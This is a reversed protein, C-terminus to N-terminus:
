NQGWGGRSDEKADISLEGQESSSSAHSLSLVGAGRHSGVARRAEVTDPQKETGM